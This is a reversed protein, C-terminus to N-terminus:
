QGPGSRMLPHGPAPTHATRRRGDGETQIAIREAAGGSREVQWRRWLFYIAPIAVLTLVTATVMGGVMPAAIRKM